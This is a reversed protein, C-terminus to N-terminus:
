RLNTPDSIVELAQKLASIEEERRKQREEFTSRIDDCAPRLDQLYKSVEHLEILNQKMSSKADAIDNILGRREATKALKDATTDAIFKANRKLLEEHAKVAAAEETILTELAGTYKELLDELMAMAGGGVANGDKYEAFPTDGVGFPSQKGMHKQHKSSIQLFGYQGSLAALATNIAGIVEEHDKKAQEFTEKEQKRIEKAVRTEEKVREIESELFLINTKLQAITTTLSVISQKLDHINKEREEKTAVSTDKETNCWEHQSTEAAQEEELKTILDSLLKLIPGFSGADFFSQQETAFYVDRLKTAIQALATAKLDKAVTIIKSLSAKVHQGATTQSNVKTQSNVRTNVHMDVQLFGVNSKAGASVSQLADLAAQTAAMEAKRISNRDAFSKTFMERDLLLQKLYEQADVIEQEAQAITAICEEITAECEAKLAIKEAQVQRMHTLDAEKAAKTEEFQRVSESEKSIMAQKQSELEGRLDELMGIVGGAGGQKQYTEYKSGDTNLFDPGSTKGTQLMASLSSVTQQTGLTTHAGYMTLALQVRQRISVLEEPTAGYHGQLIQTAKGVAAITKTVDALSIQFAEHEEKRMQILEALSKETEAIDQALTALDATLKQVMQENAAKKAKTEMVLAKQQQIFDNKEVETDDSWKQYKAWNERDETEQTQFEKLMTALMEIVEGLSSAARETMLEKEKSSVTDTTVTKGNQKGQHALRLNLMGCTCGVMAAVLAVRVM